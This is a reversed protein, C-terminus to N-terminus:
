IIDYADFANNNFSHDTIEEGLGWIALGGLAILGGGLVVTGVGKAILLATGTEAVLSSGVLTSATGYGVSTTIATTGGTIVATGVTSVTSGVMLGTGSGGVLTATFATGGGGICAGGVGVATTYTATTVSTVVVTPASVAMILSM